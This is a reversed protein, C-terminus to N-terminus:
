PRCGSQYSENYINKPNCICHKTKLISSLVFIKAANGSKFLKETGMLTPPGRINISHPFSSPATSIYSCPRRNPMDQKLRDSMAKKLRDPMAKKLRYRVDPRFPVMRSPMMTSFEDPMKWTDRTMRCLHWGAMIQLTAKLELGNLWWGM